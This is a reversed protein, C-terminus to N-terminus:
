RPLTVENGTKGLCLRNALKYWFQIVCALIPAALVICQIRLSFSTNLSIIAVKAYYNKQSWCNFRIM